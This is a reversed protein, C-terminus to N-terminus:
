LFALGGGIGSYFDSSISEDKRRTKRNANDIYCFSPNFAVFIHSQLLLVSGKQLGCSFLPSHLETPHEGRGLFQQLFGLKTNAEAAFDPRFRRNILKSM